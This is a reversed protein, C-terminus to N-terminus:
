PSYCGIACARLPAPVPPSLLQYRESNLIASVQAVILRLRRQGARQQDICRQKPGKRYLVAAHRPVAKLPM